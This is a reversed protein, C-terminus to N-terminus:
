AQSPRTSSKTAERSRGLIGAYVVIWTLLSLIALVFVAPGWLTYGLPFPEGFVMLYITSWVFAVSAASLGFLCAVWRLQSAAQDLRVVTWFLYLDVGLALAFTAALRLWALAVHNPLYVFSLLVGSAFLFVGSAIAVSFAVEARLRTANGETRGPELNRELAIWGLLGSVAIAAVLFEVGGPFVVTHLALTLNPNSSSDLIAVTGFLQPFANLVTALALSILISRLGDGPQISEHRAKWDAVPRMPYM